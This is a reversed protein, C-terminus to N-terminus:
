FNLNNNLIEHKEIFLLVLTFFFGCMVTCKQFRVKRKMRKIKLGEMKLFTVWLKQQM